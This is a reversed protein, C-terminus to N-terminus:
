QSHPVLQQSSVTAFNTTQHPGPPARNHAGAVGSQGEPRVGVRFGTIGTSINIGSTSLSFRSPGVKVSNRHECM